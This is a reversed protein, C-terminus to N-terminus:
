QVLLVRQGTGAGAVSSVDVQGYVSTKACGDVDAKIGVDANGTVEASSGRFVPGFPRANAMDGRIDLDAMSGIQTGFIDSNNGITVDQKAFIYNEFPTASGDAACADDSRGLQINLNPNNSDDITVSGEAAILLEFLDVNNQITVDGGASVVLDTATTTQGSGTGLGGLTVDNGAHLVTSEFVSNQSAISINNGAWVTMRTTDINNATGGVTVNGGARVNVDTLTVNNGFSVNGGAWITVNILESANSITINGSTEIILDRYVIGNNPLTVDGTWIHHTFPDDAPCAQKSRGTSCLHKNSNNPKNGGPNRTNEIEGDHLDEPDGPEATTAALGSVIGPVLDPLVLALDGEAGHSSRYPEPISDVDAAIIASDDDVSITSPIDVADEGFLCVSSYDGASELTLIGDSYIGSSVGCGGSSVEFLAVARAALSFGDGQLGAARAFVYPLVTNSQANRRTVVAVANATLGGAIDVPLAQRNAADWHVLEISDAIQDDFVERYNAHAVGRAVPLALARAASLDDADAAARAANVVATDAAAAMAAADAAIQLRTDHLRALGIDYVFAIMALFMPLAIAVFVLVGGREDRVFRGGVARLDSSNSWGSQDTKKASALSTM